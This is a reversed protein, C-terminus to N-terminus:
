GSVGKFTPGRGATKSKEASKLQAKRERLARAVAEDYGILPQRILERIRNDRCVVESGLGKLLALAVSSKVPSFFGILRSALWPSFFPVPFYLNVDQAVRALRELMQRYSLVEPGGIDFSQGATSEVELCGALYGIVNDIAIPQCRTQLGDLAPIVPQTKVLFRLIEFSAGGAGIVIAARLVTTEFRGSRLIREVDQRSRLHESLAADDGLASLYIVRRIGAQEAAAVFNRAAIRERRAFRSVGADLAHVLYYVTDIGTFTGSLSQPDLLDGRVADVGKPLGPEARRFLCRLPYNAALLHGVLRAGVFGTAGTVLINPKDQM